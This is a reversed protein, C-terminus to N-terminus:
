PYDCAWVVLPVPCGPSVDMKEDAEEVVVRKEATVKEKWTALDSFLRYLRRLQCVRSVRLDTRDMPGPETRSGWSSPIHRKVSGMRCPSGEYHPWLFSFHNLDMTTDAIHRKLSTLRGMGHTHYFRLTDDEVLKWGDHDVASGVGPTWAWMIVVEATNLCQLEELCRIAAIIKAPTHLFAPWTYNATALM